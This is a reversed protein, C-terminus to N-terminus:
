PLPVRLRRPEPAASVRYDTLAADFMARLLSPDPESLGESSARAELVPVGSRADRMLLAVERVYTPPEYRLARPPRLVPPHRWLPRRGSSWWFPDDWPSLDLRTVRAGIQVTFDSTVGDAVVRFGQAQLAQTAAAELAQQVVPQARQSPLREFRVSGASRGAPWESYRLVDVSVSNLTACGSLLLTFTLALWRVKM